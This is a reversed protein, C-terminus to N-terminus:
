LHVVPVQTEIPPITFFGQRKFGLLNAMANGPFTQVANNYDNIAANYFRRAASIQEELELLAKQFQIFQQDAKLEPYNEALLLVQGLGSAISSESKFRTPTIGNYRMAEARANALNEFLSKEHQAYGSVIQNLGPVLDYRKKLLADISSRAFDIQNKRAHLNNYLYIGTLILAVPVIVWWM